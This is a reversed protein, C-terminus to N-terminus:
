ELGWINKRRRWANSLCQQGSILGWVNLLFPGVSREPPGHPLFSRFFAPDIYGLRRVSECISDFCLRGSHVGEAVGSFCAYESGGSGYGPGKHSETFKSSDKDKAATVSGSWPIGALRRLLGAFDNGEVECRERFSNLVQKTYISDEAFRDADGGRSVRVVRPLMGVSAQCGWLVGAFVAVYFRRDQVLSICLFGCLAMFVAAPVGPLDRVISADVAGQAGNSSPHAFEGFVLEADLCGSRCCDSVVLKDGYISLCATRTEPGSYGWVLEGRAIGAAVCQLLIGILFIRRIAGM